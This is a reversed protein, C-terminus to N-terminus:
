ERSSEVVFERRPSSIVLDPLVEDLRDPPFNHLKAVESRLPAQLELYTRVRLAAKAEVEYRGPELDFKWESWTGSDSSLLRGFFEGCTLWRFEDARIESTEAIAQPRSPVIKGDGLRRVVITVLLGPRRPIPRSTLSPDVLVPGCSPGSNEITLRFTPGDNKVFSASTPVVSISLGAGVVRQGGEGAFPAMLGIVVLAISKTRLWLV